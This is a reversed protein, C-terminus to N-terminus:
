GEHRYTLVSALLESLPELGGALGFEEVEDKHADVAAIELAHCWEHGEADGDSDGRGEFCVDVLPELPQLGDEGVDVEVIWIHLVHRGFDHIDQARPQLPRIHTNRLSIRALSSQLPNRRQM